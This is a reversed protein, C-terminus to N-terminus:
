VHARGIEAYATLQEVAGVRYTDLCLLGVKRHGFISPHSALKALMTTKGAGTPGVFALLDQDRRKGGSARRFVEAKPADVTAAARATRTAAAADAADGAVLEYRVRGDTARIQQTKVIVADDGFEAQAEALLASLDLGRYTKLPM